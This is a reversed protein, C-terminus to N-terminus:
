RHFKEIIKLIKKCLTEGLESIVDNLRSSVTEGVLLCKKITNEDSTYRM